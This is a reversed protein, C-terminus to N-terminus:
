PKWYTWVAGNFVALQGSDTDYVMLGPSPNLINQHPSAVKPLVMAKNTDELVLIGDVDSPEGISVKSDPFDTLSSQIAMGDVNSLPNVTTGPEISLDQWGSALKVKVKKATADYIMTGNAPNDVDNQNTVWPLLLGRPETGFELSVSASTTQDVGIALQSFAMGSTMIGAILLIKKM